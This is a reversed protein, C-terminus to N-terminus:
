TLQIRQATAFLGYKPNHVIDSGYTTLSKFFGNTSMRRATCSDPGWSWALWSVENEQLVSLLAQYTFGSTTGPNTHAGDLDYYCYATQGNVQEDQKNAIEGFVIPLDASLCKAIFPIGDYAAWYAHASLLVNHLPDADIFQQGVTLFADLSSGCDPADIMIPVEIGAKRIAGIATVYAAAYSALAATSDDAWRYTGVENALNIILYATHKQLVSVVDASTWWPILQANVLSADSACTLDALMVIPVIGAAGCRELVGDLDAVSYAPRNPDGYNVYWQIRVANAHTLALDALADKGPFNWDDLLPLNVGRLVIKTGDRSYLDRGATYLTKQTGM